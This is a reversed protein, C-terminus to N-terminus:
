IFHAVSDSATGGTRKEACIYRASLKRMPEQLAESKEADGQWGADFVLHKIAEAATDKMAPGTLATCQQDSLFGM